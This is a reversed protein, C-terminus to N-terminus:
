GSSIALEVQATDLPLQIPNVKWLRELRVADWISEKRIVLARTVVSAVAMSAQAAEAWAQTEQHSSCLHMLWMLHLDPVHAYARALAVYSEAMAYLDESGLFIQRSHDLFAELVGQLTCRLDKVGEWQWAKEGVADDITMDCVQEPLGCDAPSQIGLQALSMRLRDVDGTEVLNDDPTRELVRLDSLLESLTMTLMVRMREISGLYAAATRCVIQLALVAHKRLVDNQSLMLRMLQFFMERLLRNNTSHLLLDGHEEFLQAFMPMFQRWAEITQGQSLFSAVMGPIGEMREGEERLAAATRSNGRLLNGLKPLDLKVLSAESAQAKMQLIAPSPPSLSMPAPWVLMGKPQPSDAELQRLHHRAAPEPVSDVSHSRQLLPRPHNVFGLPSSSQSGVEPSSEAETGLSTSIPGSHSVAPPPRPPSALALMNGASSAHPMGPSPTLPRRSSPLFGDGGLPARMQRLAQPTSLLGSAWAPSEEGTECSSAESGADRSSM